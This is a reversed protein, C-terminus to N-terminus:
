RNRAPHRYRASHHFAEGDPRRPIPVCGTCALTASARRPKGQLRSTRAARRPIAASPRRPCSETAAKGSRWRRIFRRSSRARLLACPITALSPSTAVMPRPEEACAPARRAARRPVAPRQCEVRRPVAPRPAAAPRPVAPLRPAVPRQPEVPPDPLAVPSRRVAQLLVEVPRLFAARQLAEVPESLAARQPLAVWQPLAARHLFDAPERSEVPPPASAALEVPLSGV